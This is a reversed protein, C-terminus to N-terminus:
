YTDYFELKAIRFKFRVFIFLNMLFDLIKANAQKPRQGSVKYYTLLIAVARENLTFYIIYHGKGPEHHFRIIREYQLYVM